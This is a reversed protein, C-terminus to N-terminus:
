KLPAHWRIMVQKPDLGESTLFAQRERRAERRRMIWPPPDIYAVKGSYGPWENHKICWGWLDMAEEVCLDAEALAAPSLSCISLAFPDTTEQVVFRFESVRRKTVARVGRSYFAAQMYYGMDWASTEFADPHASGGTTKYDYFINSKNPFWDLRSRCWITGHETEESWILTQEPEGDTFADPAESTQLQMQGINVMEALTDAQKALIPTFGQKRAQDREIRAAKKIWNKAAIIKIKTEPDGLMLGHAVTGIDFQKSTKPEHQPNLRPHDRWAHRPSRELLTQAIHSSLSPQQCPDSHYVGKPMARHRGPGAYAPSIVHPEAVISNM